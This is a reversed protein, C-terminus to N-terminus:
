VRLSQLLVGAAKYIPSEVKALSAAFNSVWSDLTVQDFEEPQESDTQRIVASVYLILSIHDYALYKYAPPVKIKWETLFERVVADVSEATVEGGLELWAAARPATTSEPMIFLDCFDVAASEFEDASWEKQIYDRCAPEIECLLELLDPQSVLQLISADIERSLVEGVLLTLGITEEKSKKLKVSM